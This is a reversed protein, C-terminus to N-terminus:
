RQMVEAMFGPILAQFRSLQDKDSLVALPRVHHEGLKLGNPTDTLGLITERIRPHLKILNMIQTIRARSLGTERALDAQSPIEGSELQAQFAMARKLTEVIKPVRPENPKPKRATKPRNSAM